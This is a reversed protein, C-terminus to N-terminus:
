VSFGVIHQKYFYMVRDKKSQVFGILKEEADYSILIGEYRLNNELLIFIPQKRVCGGLM